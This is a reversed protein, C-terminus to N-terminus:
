TCVRGSLVDAIFHALEEKQACVKVAAYKEGNAFRCEIDYDDEEDGCRVTAYLVGARRSPCDDENHM